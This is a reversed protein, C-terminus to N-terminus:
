ESENDHSKTDRRAKVPACALLKEKLRMISRSDYWRYGGKRM